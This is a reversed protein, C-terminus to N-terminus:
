DDSPHPPRERVPEHDPMEEPHYIIQIEDGWLNAGIRSEGIPITLHARVQEEINLFVEYYPM